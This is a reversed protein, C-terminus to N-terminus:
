RFIFTIFLHSSFSASCTKQKKFSWIFIMFFVWCATWTCLFSSFINVSFTASNSLWTSHFIIHMINHFHALSTFFFIFLRHFTGCCPFLNPVCQRDSRREHLVGCWLSRILKLTLSVDTPSNETEAEAVALISSLSLYGGSSPTHSKESWGWRPVFYNQKLWIQFFYTCGRKTPLPLPM